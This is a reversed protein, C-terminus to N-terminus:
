LKKLASKIRQVGEQINEMSTAFSIRIYGEGYKGFDTGALVAVGAENLLYNSIFESSKGFSSINPFVYFAGSPTTCTVGPIGNLEQVIYDRRKKFTKVMKQTAHQPGQLGELAAYQTFTATCSNIHTLLADITQMIRKPGCLYGIRWGTMSYTKSFGNVLLTRDRVHNLSYFSTFAGQDFLISDYIEDTMVWCQTNRVLHAIQLLDKKPIIGGTPNSPSNLIILKTRSSFKRTFVKMDFSFNNKKVIPIPVPKGGLFQITTEYVPFGPNPYMVEDGKEIITSLSAFIATKCGPTVAINDATVKVNRTKSINAAIAERLPAIGLPPSYKTYGEQIAKTGARSVNEPTSFDPAGIEFHIIHRGKAELKKAKVMMAFSGTPKFISTKKALQPLKTTM